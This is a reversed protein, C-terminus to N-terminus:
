LLLQIDYQSTAAKLNFITGVTVDSSKQALRHRDDYQVLLRLHLVRPPVQDNPSGDRGSCYSTAELYWAEGCGEKRGM